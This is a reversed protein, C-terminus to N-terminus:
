VNFQHLHHNAHKYAFCGTQEKTMIGFFPHFIGDGAYDNYEDFLKLWRKKEENFDTYETIKFSPVTPLDKKIPEDKMIGKLAMKGFIKGLFTQKYQKKGLVMEDWQSCHKIMQSVTMKGWQATSNENLSNIRAILDDRTIKDFISKM